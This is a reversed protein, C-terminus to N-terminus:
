REFVLCLSYVFVPNFHVHSWPWCFYAKHLLISRPPPPPLIPPFALYPPHPLFFIFFFLFIVLCLSVLSLLPPPPSFPNTSFHHHPSHSLCICMVLLLPVLELSVLLVILLSLSPSFFLSCFLCVYFWLTFASSLLSGNRNSTSIPNEYTFTAVWDKEGQIQTLM